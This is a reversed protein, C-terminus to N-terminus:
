RWGKEAKENGLSKGYKKIEEGVTCETICFKHAFNKGNENRHHTKLFCGNCYATLLHDVVALVDKRM